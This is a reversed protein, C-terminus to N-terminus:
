KKGAAAGSAMDQFGANKNDYVIFFRKDAGGGKQVRLGGRYKNAYAQGMLFSKVQEWKEASAYKKPDAKLAKEADALVEIFKKQAAILSSDDEHGTLFKSLIGEELNEISENSDFNETIENNIFNEFSKVNKM